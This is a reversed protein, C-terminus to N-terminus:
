LFHGKLKGGGGGHRISSSGDDMLFGGLYTGIGAAKKIEAMREGGDAGVFSAELPRGLKRFPLVVGSQGKHSERLAESQRESGWFDVMIVNEPHVHITKILNRLLERKKALNAKRFRESRLMDLGALLYNQDIAMDQNVMLKQKLTETEEKLVNLKKESEDLKRILGLDKM